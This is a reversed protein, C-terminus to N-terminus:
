NQIFISIFINFFKNSACTPCNRKELFIKKYNKKNKDLYKQHNKEIISYSFKRGQHLKNAGIKLAMDEKNSIFKM